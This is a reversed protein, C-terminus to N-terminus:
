IVVFYEELYGVIEVVVFIYDCFYFCRKFNVCIKECRYMYFFNLEGLIVIYSNGFEFVVVCDEYNLFSVVLGLVSVVM